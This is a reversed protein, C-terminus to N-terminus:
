TDKNVTDKHESRLREAGGDDRCSALIWRWTHCVPLLPPVTVESKTQYQSYSNSM